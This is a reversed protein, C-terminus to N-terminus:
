STDRPLVVALAYFEEIATRASQVVDSSLDDVQDLSLLAAEVLGRFGKQSLSGNRLLASLLAPWLTASVLSM